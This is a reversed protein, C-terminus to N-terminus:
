FRKKRIKKRGFVGLGAMGGALLLITAPEPIPATTPASTGVFNLPDGGTPNTFFAGFSLDGVPESFQFTFGMLSEGPAIDSVGPPIGSSITFIFDTLSPNPPIVVWDDPMAVPNFLVDSGLSFLVSFLNVGSDLIPDSDNTFTYDYQWPLAGGGLNTELYTLDAMPIAWALGNFFILFLLYSAAKILKRRLKM